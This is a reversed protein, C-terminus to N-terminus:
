NLAEPAWEEPLSEPDPSTFGLPTNIWRVRFEVDAKDTSLEAHESIVRLADYPNLAVDYFGESSTIHWTDPEGPRYVVFYDMPLNDAWFVDWPFPPTM